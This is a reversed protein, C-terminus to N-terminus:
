IQNDQRWIFKAIFNRYLTLIGIALGVVGRLPLLIRYDKALEFLLLILTDGMTLMEKM